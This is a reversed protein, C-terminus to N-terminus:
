VCMPKNDNDKEANKYCCGVTMGTTPPSVTKCKDKITLLIITTFAPKIDNDKNNKRLDLDFDKFNKM